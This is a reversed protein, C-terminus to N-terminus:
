NGPGMQIRRIGGDFIMRAWTNNGGEARLTGASPWDEDNFFQLLVPTDLDVYGHFPDYYRGTTTLALSSGQDTFNHVLDVVEYIQATDDDRMSVNMTVIATTPNPFSFSIDGAMTFADSGSKFSLKPTFTMNYSEYSIIGGSEQVRGNITSGGSMTMGDECYDNFTASGNFDGTEEYLSVTVFASGGCNGDITQSDTVVQRAVSYHDSRLEIRAMFATLSDATAQSRSPGLVTTPELSLGMAPTGAEYAQGLRYAGLLLAEANEETIIAQTTVGTYNTGPPTEGGGGVGGGGGGCAAIILTVLGALFLFVFKSCTAQKFM